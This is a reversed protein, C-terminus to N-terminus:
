RNQVPVASAAEVIEVSYGDPDSVIAVIAGKFRLPETRVAQGIAKVRAVAAVVDPLKIGIVTMRAHGHAPVLDKEKVLCMFPDAASGSFNLCIEVNPDDLSPEPDESDLERLGIVKTYFQLSRRINAVTIKSFMVESAATGLHIQTQTDEAHAHCSFFGLLACIPILNRSKM